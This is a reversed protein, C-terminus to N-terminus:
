FPVDSDDKLAPDDSRFVSPNDPAPIPQKPAPTIAAFAAIVNKDGWRGTEDERIKILVKVTKNVLSEAMIEGGEYNLQLAACLKKFMGPFNAVFYHDIVPQIGRPDYVKFSAVIMENGKKSTAEVASQILADCWTEDPILHASADDPNYRM